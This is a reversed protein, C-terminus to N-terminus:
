RKLMSQIVRTMDDKSIGDTSINYSGGKYVWYASLVKSGEEVTMCVDVNEIKSNIMEISVATGASGASSGGTGTYLPLDTANPVNSSIKDKSVPPVSEASGNGSQSQPLYDPPIVTNEQTSQVPIDKSGPGSEAGSQSKIKEEETMYKTISLTFMKISQGSYEINYMYPKSYDENMSYLKSSVQKFGNPLWTPVVIDINLAKSAEDKDADKTFLRAIDPSSAVADSARGIEATTGITRGSSSWLNERGPNNINKITFVITAVMVCATVSAALYFKRKKSVIPKKDIGYRSKETSKIKEWVDPTENEISRKIEKLIDKEDIDPM